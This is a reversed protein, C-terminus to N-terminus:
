LGIWAAFAVGFIVLGLTNLKAAWGPFPVLYLVLGVLMCLTVTNM